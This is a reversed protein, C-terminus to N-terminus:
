KTLNGKYAQIQERLHRVAEIATEGQGVGFDDHEDVFAEYNWARLREVIILPQQLGLSDCQNRVHQCSIELVDEPKPARKRRKVEALIERAKAVIARLRIRTDPREEDSFSSVQGILTRLAENELRLRDLDSIEVM